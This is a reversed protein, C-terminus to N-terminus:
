KMLIDYLDDVTEAWFDPEATQLDEPKGFGYMVAITTLGNQNGGVIDFVTDGVMAIEGSPALQQIELLGSIITTKTAHEGKYDAGKLQTIYRDFGFHASIQLAFKELKSTAIFLHKGAFHLEELLELIGPYPHNEFLGKTSYYERFYEVALETNRDNLQFLEKFSQQLPPGIFSDPVMGDFGEINMKKLAYSISNGIGQRPDTLTGDLDFIIHSYMGM